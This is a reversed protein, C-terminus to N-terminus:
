AAVKIFKRMLNARKSLNTALCLETAAWYQLEGTRRIFVDLNGTM